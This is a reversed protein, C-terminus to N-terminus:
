NKWATPRHDNLSNYKNNRKLNGTSTIPVRINDLEKTENSGPWIIKQNCLERFEQTYTHELYTIGSYGKPEDARM